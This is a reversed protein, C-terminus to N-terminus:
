LRCPLSGWLNLLEISVLCLIKLIILQYIIIVFRNVVPKGESDMYCVIVISTMGMELYQNEMVDHIRRKHYRKALRSILEKTFNFLLPRYRPRSRPRSWVGHKFCFLVLNLTFRNRLEGESTNKPTDM